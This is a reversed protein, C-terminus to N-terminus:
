GEEKMRQNLEAAKGDQDDKPFPFFDSRKAQKDKLATYVAVLDVLEEATTLDVSHGLKEEIMEQSVGFEKFAAVMKRIRDGLPEGDGKAVTKKCQDVASEVIDGPIVGLICARLRRAGNNAVHEYVDRPDTLRKKKGGKLQIEHPVEFQKTVRLNTEMDWCYSEALSAGNKRELERIGFDLNGYAQALVEALRISPGTVVEGGRPYKYVARQALSLRKCSEIIKTYATNPDRPFKKAIVLAAQVEQAARSVEAQATVGLPKEVEILEQTEESM